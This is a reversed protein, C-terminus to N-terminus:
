PRLRQGLAVGLQSDMNATFSFVRKLGVARAAVTAAIVTPFTSGGKSDVEVVRPSSIDFPLNKYDLYNNSSVSETKLGPFFARYAKVMVSNLDYVDAYGIMLYDIEDKSSAAHNKSRERDWQEYIQNLNGPTLLAMMGDRKERIMQLLQEDLLRPDSPHDIIQPVLRRIEQGINRYIIRMLFSDQKQRAGAELRLFEEQAQSCQGAAQSCQAMLVNLRQHLQPFIAQFEVDPIVREKLLYLHTLLEFQYEASQRQTSGPDDWDSQAEKIEETIKDLEEVMRRRNDKYIVLPGVKSNGEQPYLRENIEQKGVEQQRNFNYLNFHLRGTLSSVELDAIEGEETADLHMLTELVDGGPAPAKLADGDSAYGYSKKKLARKLISEIKEFQERTYQPFAIKFPLDLAKFELNPRFTDTLFKREMLKATIAQYEEFNFGEKEFDERNVRGRLSFGWVLGQQRSVLTVGNPEVSTRVFLGYTGKAHELFERTAMRRGGTFFKEVAVDVFDEILGPGELGSFHALLIKPLRKEAVARTIAEILAQKFSEIAEYQFRLDPNQEAMEETVWLDDFSKESKQLGPRSLLYAFKSFVGSLFQGAAEADKQSMIDGEIEDVTEHNVMVHAFHAAAAWNGRTLHFQIQLPVPPTDGPPLPGKFHDLKVFLGRIRSLDKIYNEEKIVLRRKIGQPYAARLLAENLRHTEEESIKGSDNAKALVEKAEQSLASIYDDTKIKRYLDPINIVQGFSKTLLADSVQHPGASGSHQQVIRDIDRNAQLEQRLFSFNFYRKTYRPALFFRYWDNDGNHAIFTLVAKKVAAFCRGWFGRPAMQSSGESRDDGAKGDSDAMIVEAQTVLEAQPSSNFGGNDLNWVTQTNIESAHPHSADRTVEGGTAWRTHFDAEDVIFRNEPYDAPDIPGLSRSLAGFVRGVLDSGRGRKTVVAKKIHFETRGGPTRMVAGGMSHAGRSALVRMMNAGWGMLVDDGQEALEKPRGWRAVGALGCNYASASPDWIDEKFSGITAAIASVAWPGLFPLLWPHSFLNFYYAAGALVGNLGLTALFGSRRIIERPLGTEDVPISPKTQPSKFPNLYDLWQRVTLNGSLNQPTFIRSLPTKPHFVAKPLLHGVVEHFWYQLAFNIRTIWPLVLASVGLLTMNWGFIRQALFLGSGWGGLDLWRNKLAELIPPFGPAGKAQGRSAVELGSSFVSERQDKLKEQFAKEEDTVPAPQLPNIVLYSEPNFGQHIMASVHPLPELNEPSLAPTTLVEPAEPILKKQNDKKPRVLRGIGFGLGLGFGFVGLGLYWPSMNGLFSLASTNKDDPPPPSGASPGASSSATAAAAVFPPANIMPMISAPPSVTMPSAQIVASLPNSVIVRATSNTNPAPAQVQVPPINSVVAQPALNVVAPPISINMTVPISVELINVTVPSPPVVGSDVAPAVAQSALKEASEKISMEEMLQNKRAALHKLVGENYRIEGQRMSIEGGHMGSSRNRKAFDAKEHDIKQQREKIKGDFYHVQGRLQAMEISSVAQQDLTPHDSALLSRAYSEEEKLGNLIRNSDEPDGRLNFINLISEQKQVAKKYNDIRTDLIDIAQRTAMNVTISVQPSFPAAASAMSPTMMLGGVALGMSLILSRFIRPVIMAQDRPLEPDLPLIRRASTPVQYFPHTNLVEAKWFPFKVIAGNSNQASVDVTAMALDIGFDGGRPSSVERYERSRPGGFGSFYMGGSAYKRAVTQRTFPDYEEKIYNYVCKQYAKLYQRYIKEKAQKDAIDVGAVQNKGVYLKGLLSDKLHRKYWTALIMANYVQRVVAFNRGENIEQRLQPLIVDRFVQHYAGAKQSFSTARDVPGQHYLHHVYSRYDAELMVDLQSKIVFAGNGQAYVDASKPLIWVKNFTNIPIETTGYLQYSRRYVDQWFKRGLENEPYSLSAMMQKLLYDQQLLDNGMLTLGFNGPVISDKEFPSLNVWLDDEPVALCTLFYKTLRIIGDKLAQGQLGSNGKDVLFEFRLPDNVNVLIGKIQLPQYPDSTNVMTGPTPIDIFSQASADPLPGISTFFFTVLVLRVILKKLM